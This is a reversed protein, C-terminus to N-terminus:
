SMMEKLKNELEKKEDVLRKIHKEFLKKIEIVEIATMETKSAINNTKNVKITNYKMSDIYSVEELLKNLSNQNLLIETNIIELQLKLLKLKNKM